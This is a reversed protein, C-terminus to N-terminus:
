NGDWFECRVGVDESIIATWDGTTQFPTLESYPQPLDAGSWARARARGLGM